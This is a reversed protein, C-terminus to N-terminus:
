RRKGDLHLPNLNFDVGHEAYELYFAIAKNVITNKPILSHAKCFTAFRPRLEDHVNLSLPVSKEKEEKM